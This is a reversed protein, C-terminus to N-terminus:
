RLEFGLVVLDSRIIDQIRNVIENFDSPNKVNPDTNSYKMKYTRSHKNLKTNHYKDVLKVEEMYDGSINRILEFFDNEGSWEEMVYFSVDKYIPLLESYPKFKIIKGDSFQGLFKEHTSWLYRIDPIDFFIMALRDFGLGFAIGEHDNLNNNLLIQQEIVGAGLIELWKNNYMVEIEYSPNTFPFYDDAFRYQCDGFLHIVLKTLIEKLKDVVNVTGKEFVMVCEMQHFIPYHHSDIEDKRYVDGSVLFNLHGKELLQNQHASTHTRLVTEEDVYYTDSKSRAPHNTPILLKDFNDQISVIPSLDDFIEFKHITMLHKYIINKIIEIPHKQKNHLKRDFKSEISKPINSSTNM